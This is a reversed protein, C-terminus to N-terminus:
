CFFYSVSATRAVTKQLEDIIGCLLITKGKRPDGKVWLLQSQPNNYWQKFSSNDLV